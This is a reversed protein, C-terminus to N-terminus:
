HDGQNIRRPPLRWKDRLNFCGAIFLLHTNFNSSYKITFITYVKMFLNIEGEAEKIFRAVDEKTLVKSKRRYGLSKGKLFPVM